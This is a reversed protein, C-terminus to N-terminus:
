VTEARNKMKQKTASMWCLIMAHTCGLLNCFIQSAFRVIWLPKSAIYVLFGCPYQALTKMKLFILDIRRQADIYFALM